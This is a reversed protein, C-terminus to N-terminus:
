RRDRDSGADRRSPPRGFRAHDLMTDYEVLFAKFASWAKAAYM